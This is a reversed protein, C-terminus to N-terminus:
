TFNEGCLFIAFFSFEEFRLSIYTYKDFAVRYKSTLPNSALPYFGYEEIKPVYNEKM